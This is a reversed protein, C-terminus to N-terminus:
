NSKKASTTIDNYQGHPRYSYLYLPIITDVNQPKINLDKFTKNQTSVINDVELQLVNDQTFPIPTFGFTAKNITEFAIAMLTALRFPISFILRKRRIVLLLKQIIEDFTLIEPGGLEFIGKSIKGTLIREVALAVDDVYVPQVKTNKGIIPVFLNYTALSAYRNFFRDEHGFILSPRLIYANPFNQLIKEEGLAKSKSYTSNSENDAGISSIHIFKDVKLKSCQKAILEPGDIYNKRMKKKSTENLLGATANIVVSSGPLYRSLANSDFLSCKYVEVQGVEGYTKLFLAENPNRVAVRVRWGCRVLRQVLYKGVFGSGGLITVVQSNSDLIQTM